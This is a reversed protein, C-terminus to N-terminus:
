WASFDVARLRLIMPGLRKRGALASVLMLMARPFISSTILGDICKFRYGPYIFINVWDSFEYLATKM